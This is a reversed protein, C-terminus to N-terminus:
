PVIRRYIRWADPQTEVLRYFKSAAFPDHQWAGDQPTVVATNCGFRNALQGVDDDTAEGSFVRRFRQNIRARESLSVPAFATALEYGAYCSRRDSLLAWSINVGWPTMDELFWPNNAVRDELPTHRRVAQWLAPTAAFVRESPTRSALIDERLYQFSELSSLAVGLVALLSATRAVALPWRSVITAAFVILLLIAPLIARWGLDNNYAIVSRLLWAICLSTGALIALPVIPERMPPHEDRQKLLVFLGILGAPYFAAFEVPLYVLWFAPLDLIRRLLTPFAPGLVAVPSFMLPTGGGRAVGAAVQDRLFPFCLVLAVVAAFALRLLLRLRRRPEISWLLFVAIVSAAVAFTLGGIWISTEYGAAAVLALVLPAFWDDREAVRVLLLCGLVVCTASAIHQPAWAVQFLWGALGSAGQLYPITTDGAFFELLTRISASAALVIVIFPAIAKGGLRQTLGIMTLLSAFATFWTLAADAEWGTVGTVVAIAATAFHWLYYYALRDPTGAEAFFPNHLPVGSRIMEDIMAIKSHDFISASLTMGTDTMKPLAALAPALALLASGAAAAALAIFVTGHPRREQQKLRLAALAVTGILVTVLIVSLRSMGTWGLLPLAIVAHLAFGLGPAYFWATPRPFLRSAIPWGIVTWVLAM